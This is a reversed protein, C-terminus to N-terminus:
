IINRLTIEQYIQYFFGYMTQFLNFSLLLIFIIISAALLTFLITLLCKGLGYEHISIMGMFIMYGTLLSGLSMVLAYIALEEGTLIRSLIIGFANAWIMPYLSYCIMLFIEKMRGKGDFLTTVAWNSVTLLVVVGVIYTVEAISNLYKIEFDNVEFGAYQIWLINFLILLLMFTVAVSTKARKERKFIEFGKLPHSLIYLPFKIYEEKIYSLSSKLKLAFSVKKNENM